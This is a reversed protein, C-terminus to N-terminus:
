HRAPLRLCYFHCRAKASYAVPYPAYPTHMSLQRKQEVKAKYKRKKSNYQSLYRVLSM